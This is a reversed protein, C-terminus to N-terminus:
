LHYTDQVALDFAQILLNVIDGLVFGATNQALMPLDVELGINYQKSLSSLMSLRQPKDPSSVELQHLFCSQVRGPIEEPNSTVGVVLIPSDKSRNFKNVESM